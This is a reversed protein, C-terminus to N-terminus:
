RPAGLLECSQEIQNIEAREDETLAWAAGAAVNARIQTPTTAGAVISSVSPNALLWAFALELLTHGHDAAYMALRDALALMAPSLYLDALNYPNKSLRSTALASTSPSYKGSLLGNALPFYPMFGMGYAELAPLLESEPARRVVSYENQSAIFEYLRETKSIWRAEVLRWAPLNSCGIYLAKGASVIDDLARLTEEIPTTPDPWHLLYLDVYDTRLRRLSGEIERMIMSRSTNYSQLPDPVGFKTVIVADDRRGVLAQGLIAESVGPTSGYVPATDFVTVGVDLAEHVVAVSEDAGLMWGFNNCGLGISSVRLGSRGMNRQQM